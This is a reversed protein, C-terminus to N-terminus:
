LYHATLTKGTKTELWERTKTLEEQDVKMNFGKSILLSIAVETSINGKAGKVFPCGGLGGLSSDFRLVGMGLAAELNDMGQGYTDHFHFALLERPVLADLRSILQRVTDPTGMGTTDAVSIDDPNEEMISGMIHLVTEPNIAGEYSCGLSCMVGATVAIGSESAKRIISRVNRIATAISTGSNKLSHTESASVFTEIRKIGAEIANQLGHENLVLASFEVGELDSVLRWVDATGAMQPVKEPNVFSGIQIRPIGAAALRRILEARELPSLVKKENQLGDRPAVDQISVVPTAAKSNISEAM